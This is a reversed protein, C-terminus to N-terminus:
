TTGLHNSWTFRNQRPNKVTDSNSNKKLNIAFNITFISVSVDHVEHVSIGDESFDYDFGNVRIWTHTVLDGVVFFFFFITL